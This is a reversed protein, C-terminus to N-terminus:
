DHKERNTNQLFLMVIIGVTGEPIVRLPAHHAVPGSLATFQQFSVLTVGSAGATVQGVKGDEHSMSPVHYTARANNNCSCNKKGTGPLQEEKTESIFKHVCPLFLFPMETSIILNDSTSFTLTPPPTSLFFCGLQRKLLNHSLIPLARGNDPTIINYRQDTDLIGRHM